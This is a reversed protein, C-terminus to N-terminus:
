RGPIPIKNPQFLIFVTKRFKLLGEIPPLVILKMQISTTKGMDPYVFKFKINNTEQVPKVKEPYNYITEQNLGAKPPRCKKPTLVTIKSGYIKLIQAYFTGPTLRLFMSNPLDGSSDCAYLSDFVSQNLESQWVHFKNIVTITLVDRDREYSCIYRYEHSNHKDTFRVTETM